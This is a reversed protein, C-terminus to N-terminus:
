FLVGAGAAVGPVFVPLRFVEVSGVDLVHRLLIFSGDVRAAVFARGLPVELGVRPGVAAYLADGSADQALGAGAEHFDGVSAVACLSLLFPVRACPVVSAAFVATSVSGGAPAGSSAPLDGRLELGLSFREGIRADVGADLGVAVSPAVGFALHPSLTAAFRVVRAVTTPALAMPAVALPVTEPPRPEPSEQQPDASRPPPPEDLGFDDVAISMALALAQAVEACSQSTAEISRVGLVVGDEGLVQLRAHYGRAGKAIEAVVTRKAWPFFVDFGLRAAVAKRLAAEDPCREAGPGRVYTLKASPSGLSATPTAAVLVLLALSAVRRRTSRSRIM